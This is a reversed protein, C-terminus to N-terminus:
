GVAATHAKAAQAFGLWNGLLQMGQPTMISEPHFQVGHIPLSRHRLAMVHGHADTATVEIPQPLTGADVVWSHYRGARFPNPLGAFLPDDPAQVYIDAEKGHWVDSLNRLSGGFATAIAQHGLCVGLMPTRGKLAEILELLIGAEAPLGPGPSLVVGEYRCAEEATIADNRRVVVKRGLLAELYQVLNYTFSDYNDIVLLNM